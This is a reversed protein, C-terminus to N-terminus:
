EGVVAVTHSGGAAIAIIGGLPTGDQKKVQVPYRRRDAGAGSTGDGLQGYSNSGWAWLTGDDKRAVTHRLGTAIATIGSLPSGDSLKAQVPFIERSSKVGIALEYRENQGWGWVTGDAKLAVTHSQGAAIAIIGSLPSGNALNVPVPTLRDTRFVEGSKGWVWVTGDSKLAVTHKNGAAIARVGGLPTGDAMKVQVPVLRNNGRTGAGLEGFDNRGWVWVTQDNKLAVTHSDGAAIAMVDSLGPVPVPIARNNTSGEGLQGYSNWGWAFVQGDNKLAV